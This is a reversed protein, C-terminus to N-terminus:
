VRSHLIFFFNLNPSRKIDLDARPISRARLSPRQFVKSALARADPKSRCTRQATACFHGAMNGVALQITSLCCRRLFRQELRLFYLPPWVDQQRTKERSDCHRAAPTGSPKCKKESDASKVKRRGAQRLFPSLKSTPTERRLQAFDAAATLLVLIETPLPADALAAMAKQM